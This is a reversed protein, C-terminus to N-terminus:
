LSTAEQSPEFRSPKVPDQTELMLTGQPSALVRPNSHQEKLPSARPSAWPQGMMAKPRITSGQGELVIRKHRHRGGYFEDQYLVHPHARFLHGDVVVGAHLYLGQGAMHWWSTVGLPGKAESVWASGEKCTSSCM